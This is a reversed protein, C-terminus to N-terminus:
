IKKHTKQREYEYKVKIYINEILNSKYKTLKM